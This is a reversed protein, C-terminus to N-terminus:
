RLIYLIILYANTLAASHARSKLRNALLRSVCACLDTPALVYYLIIVYLYVVATNYVCTCIYLIIMWYHYMIKIWICDTHFIIYLKYQTNPRVYATHSYKSGIYHFGRASNRTLHMWSNKGAWKKKWEFM